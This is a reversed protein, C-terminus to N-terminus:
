VATASQFSGGLPDGVNQFLVHGHHFGEGEHAMFAIFCLLVRDGRLILNM